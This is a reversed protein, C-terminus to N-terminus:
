SIGKGPHPNIVLQMFFSDNRPSYALKLCRGNHFNGLLEAKNAILQGFGSSFYPGLLPM